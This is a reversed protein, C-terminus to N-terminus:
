QHEMYYEGIGGGSVTLDCKLEDVLFSIQVLTNWDCDKLYINRTLSTVIHKVGNRQLADVLKMHDEESTSALIELIEEPTKNKIDPLENEDIEPLSLDVM